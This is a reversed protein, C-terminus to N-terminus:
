TVQLVLNCLWKGREVHTTIEMESREGYRREYAGEKAGLHNQSQPVKAIAAYTNTIGKPDVNKKTTYTKNNRKTSSNGRQEDGLDYRSM